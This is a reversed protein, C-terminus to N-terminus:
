QPFNFKWVLLEGWEHSKVIAHLEVFRGHQSFKGRVNDSYDTLSLIKGTDADTLGIESYGEGRETVTANKELEAIVNALKAIQIGM